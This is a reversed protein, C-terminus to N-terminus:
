FWRQDEGLYPQLWDAADLYPEVPLDHGSDYWDVTKLESAATQNRMADTTPVNIDHIGNQFLIAAPASRSIDHLSETPWMLAAWEKGFHAPLGDDGPEYTHEVLSGDRIKLVYAVLRNEIGALLDGM